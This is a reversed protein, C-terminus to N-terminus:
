IIRDGTNLQTADIVEAGEDELVSIIEYWMFNRNTLGCILNVELTSDMTTLNMIPLMRSSSSSTAHDGRLLARRRKLKEIKKQLQMIYSIARDVLESVSLKSPQPPVLSALMLLLDRMEMRRNKEKMNRQARSASSTRRPM